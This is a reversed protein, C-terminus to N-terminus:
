AHARASEPSIGHPVIIRVSRREAHAPLTSVLSSPGAGRVIGPIVGIREESWASHERWQRTNPVVASREAHVIRPDPGAHQRLSADTWASRLALWIMERLSLTEM